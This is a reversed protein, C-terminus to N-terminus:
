WYRWEGTALVFGGLAANTTAHAVIAAFLSRSRKLWMAYALSAVVAALWEPHAMASAAVMVWLAFASFTGVPLSRFDYRTLYRLLFSRWFIEEMVPVMLVLGFLRVLIFAPWWASGHLATPDFAGRVGLRPYDVISDLGIWAGFVLIGIAVSPLIVRSDFRIERLPTRCVLLTTTVIVAKLIYAAPFWRPAVLTEGATLAGFVIMPIWYDRM